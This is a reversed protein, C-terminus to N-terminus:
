SYRQFGSTQDKVSDHAIGNVRFILILQIQLQTEASGNKM